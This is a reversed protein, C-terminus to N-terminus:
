MLATGTGNPREEWFIGDKAGAEITAGMGNSSKSAAESDDRESAAECDGPESVAEDHCRGRMMPHSAGSKVMPM